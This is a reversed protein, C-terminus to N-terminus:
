KKNTYFAGMNVSTPTKVICVLLFSTSNGQEVQEGLVLETEQSFVEHSHPHRRQLYVRLGYRLKLPPGPLSVEAGPQTRIGHLDSQRRLLGDQGQHILGQLVCSGFADHELGWLNHCVHIQHSM